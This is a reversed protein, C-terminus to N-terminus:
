GLALAMDSGPNILIGQGGGSGTRNVAPDIVYLKAGNRRAEMIFPWLHVNTGLVNAGWALILSALPPVAGARNWLSRRASRDNRGHRCDLLHDPRAAVRRSSSSGGIWGPAM